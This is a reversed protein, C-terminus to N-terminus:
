ICGELGYTVFFSVNDTQEIDGLDEMFSEVLNLTAGRSRFFEVRCKGTDLGFETAADCM